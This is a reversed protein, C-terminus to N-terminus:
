KVNRFEPSIVDYIPANNTRIDGRETDHMM